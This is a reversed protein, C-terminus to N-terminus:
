VNKRRELEQDILAVREKSFGYHSVSNRRENEDSVLDNKM